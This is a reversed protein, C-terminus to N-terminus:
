HVRGAGGRLRRPRAQSKRAPLAVQRRPRRRGRVRDREQGGRGRPAARGMEARHGVAVDRKPAIARSAEARTEGATSLETPPELDVRSGNPRRHFLFTRPMVAKSANKGFFLLSLRRFPAAVNAHSRADRGDVLIARAYHAHAEELAGRKFAANGAERAAATAARAADSAAPAPAPAPAAPAAAAAEGGEPTRRSLEVLDGSRLAKGLRADPDIPKGGNRTMVVDDGEVGLAAALVRCPKRQWQLNLRLSRGVERDADRVTIALAAVDDTTAVAEWVKSRARARDATVRKPAECVRREYYRRDHLAPNTARVGERPVEEVVPAEEGSAPDLRKPPDCVTDAYYRKDHLVKNTAPM